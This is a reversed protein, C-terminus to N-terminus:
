VRFLSSPSAPPDPRPAQPAQLAWRLELPGRQPQFGSLRGLGPETLALGYAVAGPSGRHLKGQTGTSLLVTPLGSLAPLGTPVQPRHPHLIGLSLAKTQSARSGTSWGGGKGWFIYLPFGFLFPAPLM